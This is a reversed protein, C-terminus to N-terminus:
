FKHGTLSHEMQPNLTPYFPCFSTVVRAGTQPKLQRIDIYKEM